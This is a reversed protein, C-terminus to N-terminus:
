NVVIEYTGSIYQNKSQYSKYSIGGKTVSTVNMPITVGNMLVNTVAMSSPVVLFIYKGNAVNITYKGKPNLRVSAVNTADTYSNGSGYYIKAVCNVYTKASLTTGNVVATATFGLIGESGPTVTTSGVLSTGSGSAITSGSGNKIIISTANNKTTATVNLTSSDGVFITTPSVTLKLLASNEILINLKDYVLAPLEADKALTEIAGALGIDSNQLAVISSDIIAKVGTHYQNLGSADLFEM